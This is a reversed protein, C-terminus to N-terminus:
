VTHESAKYLKQGKTATRVAPTPDALLQEAEERDQQTFDRTLTCFEVVTGNPDQTYISICWDHDIELVDHGKALWRDRHRALDDVDEASFATEDHLDWFAILQDRASGTSYFVHKAWGGGIKGVEVKVLEFGMAETYFRHTAEMDTAAFALHHVGM